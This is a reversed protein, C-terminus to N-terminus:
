RKLIGPIAISRGTSSGVHDKRNWSSRYHYDAGSECKEGEITMFLSKGGKECSYSIKEGHLGHRELTEIVLQNPQFYFTNLAPESEPLRLNGQMMTENVVLDTYLGKWVDVADNSATNIFFSGGVKLVRSMEEIAKELDALHFLVNVSLVGDVSENEIPLAYANGVLFSRDPRSYKERARDVLFESPEVGIYKGYGEIEASGRGQGSGIDLIAPETKAIGAIWKRMEPYLVKDRWNGRETEVSAVWQKAVAADTFPNAEIGNKMFLNPPRPSVRVRMCQQM